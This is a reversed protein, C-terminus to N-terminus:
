SKKKNGWCVLPIAWFLGCLMMSMAGPEPVPMIELHHYDMGMWNGGGDDNYNIGTLTIENDAGPGGVFGVDAASFVMSTTVTGVSLGSAPDEAYIVEPIIVTGNATVEAGYRSNGQGTHLNNAAFSYRFMDGPDLDSPLNFHFTLRNDTGAFARESVGEEAVTGIPDPYTGATYYDDDAMQNVAPSMPDGPRENEGAEQVFLTGGQDQPWGRGPAGLEFVNEWQAAATGAFMSLMAIGFIVKKM